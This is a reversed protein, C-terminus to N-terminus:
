KKLRRLVPHEFDLSVPIRKFTRFFYISPHTSVPCTQPACSVSSHFSVKLLNCYSSVVEFHVCYKSEMDKIAKEVQIFFILNVCIPFLISWPFLPAGSVNKPASSVFDSVQYYSHDGWYSLGKRSNRQTWDLCDQTLLSEGYMEEKTM